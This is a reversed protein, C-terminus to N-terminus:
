NDTNSSQEETSTNLDLNTDTPAIIPDIPDIPDIKDTMTDVPDILDLFTDSPISDIPYFLLDDPAMGDSDLHTNLDAM